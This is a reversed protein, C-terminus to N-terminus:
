RRSVPHGVRDLRQSGGSRAGLGVEALAAQLLQMTVVSTENSSNVMGTLVTGEAVGAEALLSRALDPDYPPPGPHRARVRLHGAGGRGDGPGLDRRYVGERVRTM